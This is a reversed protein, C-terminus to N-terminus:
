HPRKEMRDYWASLWPLKKMEELCPEKAAGFFKLTTYMQIDVATLRKGCVFEDKSDKKLAELWKSKNVGWERLGKYADPILIAGNEPTAREKFFDNFTPYVFHEEMRRQWMRTQARQGM